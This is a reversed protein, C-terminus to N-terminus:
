NKKWIIEATMDPNQQCKVSNKTSGIDYGTKQLSNINTTSWKIVIDCDYKRQCLTIARDKERNYFGTAFYYTGIHCRYRHLPGYIPITKMPTSTSDSDSSSESRSSGDIHDVVRDFSRSSFFTTPM